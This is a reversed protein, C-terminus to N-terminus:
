SALYLATRERARAWATPADLGASALGPVIVTEITDVFLSKAFDGDCVGADALAERPARIGGLKPVEYVVQHAFADVLYRDLRARADADLLPLLEGLARWGFRAHQVEDALIGALVEALPGGELEVHEARIISVAITESMCGVSVINRLVAELRSADEHTPVEALDPMPATAEGGLALVCGACQAAHRLEDRVAEGAEIVLDASAKAEMLQRVLSAWVGASVYENVMRGRWTRVAIGREAGTLGPLATSDPQYRIGQRTLDLM